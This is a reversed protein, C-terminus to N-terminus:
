NYHISKHASELNYNYSGEYYSSVKTIFYYEFNEKIDLENEAPVSYEIPLKSEDIYVNYRKYNFIVNLMEENDKYKDLLFDNEEESYIIEEIKAIRGTVIVFNTLYKEISVEKIDLVYDDSNKLLYEISVVDPNTALIVDQIESPFSELEDQNIKEVSSCGNLLYISSLALLLFFKNRIM